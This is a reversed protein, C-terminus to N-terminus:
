DDEGDVDRGEYLALERETNLLLLSLSMDLCGLRTLHSSSGNCLATALSTLKDDSVTCLM